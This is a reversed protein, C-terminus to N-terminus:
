AAAKSATNPLPLLFRFTTGKGATTLIEIKGGANLVTERVAALGVGRGSIDTAEERTSVGDSFLAATLDDQNEAPLGLKRAREAVKPWDIGRGSDAITVLIQDGEYATSIEIRATKGLAEREAKTELGHDVANRIVHILGGWFSAWGEAPLRVDNDHTVVEIPDKDLRKALATVADALSTLREVTPVLRWRDMESVLNDRSVDRVLATRFAEYERLTVQVTDPRGSRLLQEATSEVAQWLKNLHDKEDATPLGGEEVMRSELTHCLEAVGTIGFSGANGKLTHLARTVSVSDTNAPNNIYAALESAEKMFDVFVTRSAMFRKFLELLQRQEREAREHVVASTIDTLVIICQRMVGEELIPRYTIEFHREGSGLRVPFQQLAMELPLFDDLLTSWLAEIWVSKRPDLSSVYSWLHQGPTPEDLWLNLIASREGVLVGNADVVFFGQGVNDLVLKMDRNRRAIREEREAIAAAMSGFARSLDGVEDRTSIAVNIHKGSELAKAAEGLQTLPRVVIRRALVILVAALLFAVGTATLLINKKLKAFTAEERALSFAAVVRGLQAGQPDLINESLVLRGNQHSAVGAKVNPPIEIAAVGDRAFGGLKEHKGEPSVKFITTADVDPNQRLQALSDSMGQQDQFQVVAAVSSSFLKTVMSAALEKSQFLSKREHASLAFYVCISVIAIMAVTGVALKTGVSIRGENAAVITSPVSTQNAEQNTAM